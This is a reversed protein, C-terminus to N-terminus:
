ELFGYKLVQARLLAEVEVPPIPRSLHYGQVEDCNNERLFALQEESEVGEAIVKLDLRHGLAVMASAIARDDSDTPINRVFSQDIKLRVIPFHKLASLSSYGTGFDDISLQVGMAQLEDMTAIAQQLDKMILSETLELELYKAELGSEELADAVQAVLDKEMFQRASVNVSMTIRPLGANQWQKNQKCATRLVWNGIPVILGTEEALPIFRGPSVLGLEPHQWRILAEVGVIHGRRVDAQPQYLVSFESRTIANRLGDQLALREHIQTNMETTYFQFNNGGIEKAQSMAANANRLLLETDRGDSPYTSLGISCTIRIDRGGIEIPQAIADRIKQLTPTIVDAKETQDFLVIVFEDGGIRVVTDTRRVGQVLRNAVIILLEDGVDRGFSDNVMKFNDLGVCAITVSRRYRQAYLMAQKLRDELLGRNPLGTLVDHQALYRIREETQRREIAIGAIHVAMDTLRLEVLTPKRAEKAYMTFSGLMKGEHSLIPNSWCARLGHHSLLERYPEWLPDQFIDAVALPERRYMPMGLSDGQQDIPLGEIVKAFTAPLSAAINRRIHQEDNDPLLVCCAIENLQSEILHALSRLVEELPTSTAIMELIQSQGARLVESRRREAIEEDLRANATVLETSREQVNATLHKQINRLMLHTDVRAIVEEVQVPKVIYDVGGLSFAKVKDSVEDAASIFIVPIDRTRESKKLLECVEYGDLGPMRIDLLILDPLTAELFSLAHEGSIASYVTYQDEDLISALLRVNAPIDDVILISPKKAGSVLPINM